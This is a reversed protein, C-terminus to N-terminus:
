PRTRGSERASAGANPRTVTLRCAAGQWTIRVLGIRESEEVGANAPGTFRRDGPPFKGTAGWEVDGLMAPQDIGAPTQVTDAVGIANRIPRQLERRPM